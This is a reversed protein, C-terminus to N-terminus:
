HQLVIVIYISLLICFYKESKNFIIYILYVVFINLMLCLDSKRLFKCCTGGIFFSIGAYNGFTSSFILSYIFDKLRPTQFRHFQLKWPYFKLLVMFKSTMTNAWFYSMTWVYSFVERKKKLIIKIKIHFKHLKIVYFKRHKM